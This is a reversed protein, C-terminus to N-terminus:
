EVQTEEAPKPNVARMRRSQEQLEQFLSNSAIQDVEHQKRSEDVELMSFMDPDFSDLTESRQSERATTDFRLMPGGGGLRFVTHNQLAFEAVVRNDVLTGHRGTSILRWSGNEHVLRAHVRSVHPDALVVDNEESRGITILEQTTFRWTQLSHGQASDLLHVVVFLGASPVPHDAM